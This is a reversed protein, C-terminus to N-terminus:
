PKRWGLAAPDFAIKQHREPRWKLFDVSRHVGECLSSGLRGISIWSARLIGLLFLYGIATLVDSWIRTKMVIAAIMQM